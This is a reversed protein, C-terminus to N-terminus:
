LEPLQESFVDELKRARETYDFNLRAQLKPFRGLASDSTFCSDILTLAATQLGQTVKQLDARSNTADARGESNSKLKALSDTAVLGSKKRYGLMDSSSVSKVAQNELTARFSKDNLKTEYCQWFLDVAKPLSMCEKNDNSGPKCAPQGLELISCSTLLGAKCVAGLASPLWKERITQTLLFNLKALLRAIGARKLVETDNPYKQAFWDEEVEVQKKVTAMGEGAILNGEDDETDRNYVAYYGHPSLAPLEQEDGLARKRLRTIDKPKKNEDCRTLVGVTRSMMKHDKIRKTTDQSFM